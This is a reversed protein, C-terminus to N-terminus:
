TEEGVKENRWLMRRRKMEKTKRMMMEMDNKEDKDNEAINDQGRWSTWHNRDSKRKETEMKKAEERRMEEIQEEPNRSSWEEYEKQKEKGEEELARRMEWNYKNKEIYNTLWGMMMWHNKIREKRRKEEEKRKKTKAARKSYARTM